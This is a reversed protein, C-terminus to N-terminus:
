HQWRNHDEASDTPTKPERSAGQLSSASTEPTTNLHQPTPPLAHIRRRELPVRSEAAPGPYPCCDVSSAACTHLTRTQTCDREYTCARRPARHRLAQEFGERVLEFLVMSRLFYFPAASWQGSSIVLPLPNFFLSYLTSVSVCVSSANYASYLRKNFIYPM